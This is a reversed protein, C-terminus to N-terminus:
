IIELTDLLSKTVTYSENKLNATFNRNKRCLFFM